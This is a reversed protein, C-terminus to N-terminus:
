GDGRKVIYINLDVDFDSYDKQESVTYINDKHKIKEGIDISQYTYVKRDKNTYVAGERYDIENGKLPVVAGEIEIEEIDGDIWLGGQMPDYYGDTERIIHIPSKSYKKILRKFDYM